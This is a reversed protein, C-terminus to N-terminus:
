KIGSNEIFKDLKDATVRPFGLIKLSQIKQAETFNRKRWQEFVLCVTVKWLVSFDDDSIINKMRKTSPNRDIDITLREISYSTKPSKIRYAYALAIQAANRSIDYKGVKYPTLAGDTVIAPTIFRLPNVSHLSDGLEIQKGHIFDKLGIAVPHIIADHEKAGLLESAIQPNHGLFDKRATREEKITSTTSAFRKGCVLLIEVLEGDRHHEWIQPDFTAPNIKTKKREKKQESM